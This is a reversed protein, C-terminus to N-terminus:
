EERHPPAAATRPASQIDAVCIDRFRTLAQLGALRMQKRQSATRVTNTRMLFDFPQLSFKRDAHCHTFVSVHISAVAHALPGVRCERFLISEDGIRRRIMVRTFRERIKQSEEIPM